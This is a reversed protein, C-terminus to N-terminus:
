SAPELPYGLDRWTLLGGRLNAVQTHGAKELIQAAIVSRAGSPCLTVVPRARSVQGAAHRLESLPILTAGSIRGLPDVRAEERERVDLITLEAQHAHAWEPEVQWVGAYTRVVLGWDPAISQRAVHDPRGCKLNAPVAEAMKKPHPLGLNKMYGVFDEERVGSGLRPNYAKEERVTTVTRGSYDHGPYLLCDDNLSLIQSHVSQFLLSANGGQFDTRGAGRILLADGTFATRGDQSVFTLCGDTHGPTGRVELVISGVQVRDGPELEVDAGSVRAAKAVCIKSSTAEKMLWAGTVHDAHVHTELTYILKLGLERVLALDRLHQEFVSDILLAEGSAEDGLLYTFTSTNADFLQRFIM